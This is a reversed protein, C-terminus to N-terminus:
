HSLRNQWMSNPRTLQLATQIQLHMCYTGGSRQRVGEPEYPTAIWFCLVSTKDMTLVDSRLCMFLFPARHPTGQQLGLRVRDCCGQVHFHRICM